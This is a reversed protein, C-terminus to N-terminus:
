KEKYWDVIKPQSSVAEYLGVLKHFDDFLNAAIHELVGKKIWNVCIYLKIDAVSLKDGAIFPGKIKKDMNYAWEKMYGEALEMRMNKKQEEDKLRMTPAIRMSLDEVANLIACHQAAEFDNEPLLGHRTGILGLIANSQSLEGEGEIKMIPMAGFPTSAKKAPWDKPNIRDDIFDVGAMVLALRCEEGRSGSFDFYSLTVKPESNNQNM